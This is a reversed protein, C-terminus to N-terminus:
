YKCLDPNRNEIKQNSFLMLTRMELEAELEAFRYIRSTVAASNANEIAVSEKEAPKEAKEVKSAENAVKKDAKGKLQVTIKESNIKHQCQDESKKKQHDCEDFPCNAESFANESNAVPVCVSFFKATRNVQGKDDKLETIEAFLFQAVDGEKETKKRTDVYYFAQNENLRSIKESVKCYATDKIQNWNRCKDKSTCNGSVKITKNNVVEPLKKPWGSSKSLAKKLKYQSKTALSETALFVAVLLIALVFSKM